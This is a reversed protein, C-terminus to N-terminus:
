QLEMVLDCIYKSINNWLHGLDFKLIKTSFQLNSSIQIAYIREIIVPQEPVM